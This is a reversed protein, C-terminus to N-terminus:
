RLSEVKFGIQEITAVAGDLTKFLRSEGRRADVLPGTASGGRLQVQWGAGMPVREISFGELYGLSFDRKAQELTWTTM